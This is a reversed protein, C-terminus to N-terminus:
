RGERHNREDGHSEQRGMISTMVVEIEARRLFIAVTLGEVEELDM